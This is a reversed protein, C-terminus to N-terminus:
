QASLPACLWLANSCNGAHGFGGFVALPFDDFGDPPSPLPLNIQDAIRSSSWVHLIPHPGELAGNRRQDADGLFPPHLSGGLLQRLFDTLNCTLRLRRQPDELFEEGKLLSGPAFLCSSQVPHLHLQRCELRSMMRRQHLHQVAVEILLPEHHFIQFASRQGAM